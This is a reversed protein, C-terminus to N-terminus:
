YDRRKNESRLSYVFGGCGWHVKGLPSSAFEGRSLAKKCAFCRAVIRKYPQAVENM